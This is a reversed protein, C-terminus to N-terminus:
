GVCRFDGREYEKGFTIYYTQGDDPPNQIVDGNDDLIREPYIDSEVTGDNQRLERVSCVVTYAGYSEKVKGEIHLSKITQTQAAATIPLLSTM